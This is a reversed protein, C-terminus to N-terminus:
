IKAKGKDIDPEPFGKKNLKKDRRNSVNEWKSQWSNFLLRFLCLQLIKIKIESTLQKFNRVTAGKIM